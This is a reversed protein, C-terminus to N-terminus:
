PKLGVGIHARSTYEVPDRFRAHFQQTTTARFERWQSATLLCRLWRAVGSLEMFSLFDAITWSVHYEHEQIDINELGAGHLVERLRAPDTFWQEWHGMQHIADELTQRGVRSAVADKWLLH